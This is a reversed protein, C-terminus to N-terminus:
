DQNISLPREELEKAQKADYNLNQLALLSGFDNSRKPSRSQKDEMPPSDRFISPIMGARAAPSQMPSQVLPLMSREQSVYGRRAAPSTLPDM